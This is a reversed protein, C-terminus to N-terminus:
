SSHWVCAIEPWGMLTITDVTAIDMASRGRNVVEVTAEGQDGMYAVSQTTEVSHTVM